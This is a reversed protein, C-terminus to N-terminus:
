NTGNRISQNTVSHRTPLSTTPLTTATSETTALTPTTQNRTTPTPPPATTTPLPATTTPLPATTTPLPATTTPLPATTTPLPATTTPPPSTTTPLPPPPCYKHCKMRRCTSEKSQYYYVNDLPCCGLWRCIQAVKPSTLRVAANFHNYGAITARWRNGSFVAVVRRNRGKLKVHVGAGSSGPAADCRFYLVDDDQEVVRCYRCCASECDEDYGCFYIQAHFGHRSGESVTTPMWVYNSNSKLELLAYDYRPAITASGRTWGLPLFTSQVRSWDFATDTRLHGVKLTRYGRVYATRNHICHASTLVHRSSIQTGTCGTSIKVIASFPYKNAKSRPDAQTREDVGYIRRKRRSGAKRRQVRPGPDASAATLESIHNLEVIQNRIKEQGRPIWSQEYSLAIRLEEMCDTANATSTTMSATPVKYDLQFSADNLHLLNACSQPASDGFCSLFTVTLFLRLM